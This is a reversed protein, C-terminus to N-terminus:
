AQQVGSEPSPLRQRRACERARGRLGDPAGQPSRAPVRPSALWSAPRTAPHRRDRPTGRSASPRPGQRPSRSPASQAQGSSGLSLPPATQGRSRRPAPSRRRDYRPVCAARDGLNGAIGGQNDLDAIDLLEGPLNRAEDSIPVLKSSAAGGPLALGSRPRPPCHRLPLQSEILTRVGARGRDEFQRPRRPLPPRDGTGLEPPRGVCRAADPGKGQGEKSSASRHWADQRQHSVPRRLEGRAERPSGASRLSTRSLGLIRRRSRAESMQWM